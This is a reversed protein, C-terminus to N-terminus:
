TATAETAPQAGAANIKVKSKAAKPKTAPADARHWHGFWTRLTSPKLGIKLGRTWATERGEAKYLEHITGKRSGEKHEVAEPKPKKSKSM